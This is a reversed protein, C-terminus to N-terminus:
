QKLGHRISYGLAESNRELAMTNKNLAQAAETSIEKQFAHCSEGIQRMVEAHSEDRHKMYDLFFWVVIMLAVINPTQKAVELFVENM